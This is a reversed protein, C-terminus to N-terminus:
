YGDCTIDRKGATLLLAISLYLSLDSFTIRVFATCLSKSLIVSLRDGADEMPLTVTICGLLVILVLPFVIQSVYFDPMREMRFRIQLYSPGGHKVDRVIGYRSIYPEIRWENLIGGSSVHVRIKSEFLKVNLDREKELGAFRLLVNMSQRDLPFCQLDLSDEFTAQFEIRGSLVGNRIEFEVCLFIM